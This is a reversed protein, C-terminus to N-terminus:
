GQDDWDLSISCLLWGTTDNQIGQEKRSNLTLLPDPRNVTQANLWEAVSFKIRSTDASRAANAGEQLQLYLNYYKQGRLAAM